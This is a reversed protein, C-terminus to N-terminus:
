VLTEKFGTLSRKFLRGRTNRAKLAEQMDRASLSGREFINKPNRLDIIIQKENRDESFCKGSIRNEAFHRRQVSDVSEHHSM